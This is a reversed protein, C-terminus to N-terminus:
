FETIKRLRSLRNEIDQITIGKLMGPGFDEVNYSAVVTGYAIAKRLTREDAADKRSLYGLLGGAFSDGAGTPDVVRDLPYAPLAFISRESYMISGHEGKKAIVYKPGLSLIKRSADLLNDEEVFQKIEPENMLVADVHKIVDVLAEKKKEIWFNMTDCAVFKSHQMQGLVNLQLEPDINALFVYNCSKYEEPVTPRFTEFVNLYTYLTKRDNPDGGYRGGWRFTEGNADVLIGTLDVSRRLLFDLEEMPFDGGVIGIVKVHDFLSAAASFHISSGGIVESAKGYPSEITDLAISGVVLVSM